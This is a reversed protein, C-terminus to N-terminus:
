RTPTHMCTGSTQAPSEPVDSSVPPPVSSSSEPRSSGWGRRSDDRAAADDGEGRRKRAAERLAAEDDLRRQSERQAKGDVSSHRPRGGDDSDRSPRGAARARGDREDSSDVYREVDSFDDSDSMTAASVFRARQPEDRSRAGGRGGRAGRGGDRGRTAQTGGRGGRAAGRSGDGRGAGQRERAHEESMARLRDAASANATGTRHVSAEPTRADSDVVAQIPPQGRAGPPASAAGAGRTAPAPATAVTPNAGPQAAPAAAPTSAPAPAAGKPHRYKMVSNLVNFMTRQIIASVRKPRSALPALM